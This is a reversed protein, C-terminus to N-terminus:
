VKLQYHTTHTREAQASSTPRSKALARARRSRPRGCLYVPKAHLTGTLMATAFKDMAMSTEAWSLRRVLIVLQRWEITKSSQMDHTIPQSLRLCLVQGM